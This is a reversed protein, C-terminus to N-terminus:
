GKTILVERKWPKKYFIGSLPTYHGSSIADTGGTGRGDRICTPLWMGRGPPPRLYVMMKTYKRSLFSWDDVHPHQLGLTLCLTERNKVENLVKPEEIWKSDRPM